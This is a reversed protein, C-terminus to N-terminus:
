LLLGWNLLQRSWITWLTVVFAWFTRWRFWRVCQCTQDRFTVGKRVERPPQLHNSLCGFIHEQFTEENYIPASYVLTNLIFIWLISTLMNNPQVEFVLANASKYQYSCKEKNQQPFCVGSTQGLCKLYVRYRGPQCIVPATSSSSTTTLAPAIQWLCLRQKIGAILYLSQSIYSHLATWMFLQWALVRVAPM